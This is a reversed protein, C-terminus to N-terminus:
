PPHSGLFLVGPQGRTQVCMCRCICICDCARALYIILSRDCMWGIEGKRSLSGEGRLSLTGGSLLACTWLWPHSTQQGMVVMSGLFLGSKVYLVCLKNASGSAEPFPQGEESGWRESLSPWSRQGGPGPFTRCREGCRHRMPPLGPSARM